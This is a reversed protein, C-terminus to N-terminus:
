YLKFYRRLEWDHFSEPDYNHGAWHIAFDGPRFMGYLTKDHWYSNFSCQPLYKVHKESEFTSNKLVSIMISQENDEALRQRWVERLFKRSWDNVKLMFVGANLYNRDRTVLLSYRDDIFRELEIDMNVILVDTDIWFIWNSASHVGDQSTRNLEDQLIQIKAWAPVYGLQAVENFYTTFNDRLEYREQHHSQY